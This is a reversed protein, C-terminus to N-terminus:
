RGSVLRHADEHCELCSRFQSHLSPAHPLGHCDQCRPVSPHRGKHCSVCNIGGHNTNTAALDRGQQLHCIRCLKEAIYGHPAIALPQHAPHCLLCDASNQNSGHPQHCELCAPIEKHKTHCRNCFLKAHRSPEDAMQRGIDAHCSLCEKRAPKLPDRLSQLPQHPDVHCHTCHDIRDHPQDNHCANCDLTFQGTAPPHRPHCDLCGVETAHRGGFDSVVQFQSTHCKGCDTTQLETAAQLLSPAVLGTLLLGLLLNCLKAVM